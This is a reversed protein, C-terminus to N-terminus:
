THEFNVMVRAEPFDRGTEGWLTKREVVTSEGARM